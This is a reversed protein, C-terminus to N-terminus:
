PNLLCIGLLFKFIVKFLMRSVSSATTILLVHAPAPGRPHQYHDIVLISTVRTYKNQSLGNCKCNQNTGKETCIYVEFIKKLLLHSVNKFCKIPTFGTPQYQVRHLRLSAWPLGSLLREGVAHSYAWLFEPRWRSFAALTM